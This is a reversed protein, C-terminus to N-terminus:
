SSLEKRSDRLDIPSFFPFNLCHLTAPFRIETLFPNGGFRISNPNGSFRLSNSPNEGFRLSNSWFFSDKRLFIIAMYAVFVVVTVVFGLVVVVIVRAQALRLYMGIQSFSYSCRKLAFYRWKCM